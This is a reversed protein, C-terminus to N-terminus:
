LLGCCTRIKHWNYGICMKWEWKGLIWKLIIRGGLRQKGVLIKEEPKGAFFYANTM